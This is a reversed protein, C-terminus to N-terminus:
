SPRLTFLVLYTALIGSTLLCSTSREGLPICSWRLGACKPDNEEHKREEAVAGVTLGAKYLDGSVYGQQVGSHRNSM